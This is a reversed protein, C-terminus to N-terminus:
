RYHRCHPCHHIPKGLKRRWSRLTAESINLKKAAENIRIKRMLKLAYLRFQESYNRQAVDGLRDGALWAGLTRRDCGLDRAVREITAGRRVRRIARDKQARTYVVNWRAPKDKRGFARRWRTLTGTAVKYRKAVTRWPVGAELAKVARARVHKPHTVRQRRWGPEARSM